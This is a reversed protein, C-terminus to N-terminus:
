WPPDAPRGTNFEKEGPRSSEDDESWTRLDIGANATRDLPM